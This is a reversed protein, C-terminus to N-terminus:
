VGRKRRLLTLSGLGLLAITAPEPVVVFTSTGSASDRASLTFNFKSEISTLTDNITIMSFENGNEESHTVTGSPITFGNVLNAFVTSGNYLAQHTKGGGSVPLLGTITAGSATIRDTLTIGASAYATPNVMAAFTLVGSSISYTTTSSGARVGFEIGVEPDSKTFIRLYTIAGDEDSSLEPYDFTTFDKDVLVCEFGGAIAVADGEFTQDFSRTGDNANVTVYVPCAKAGVPLILVAMLLGLIFTKKLM